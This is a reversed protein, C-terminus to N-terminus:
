IASLIQLLTTKSIPKVLHRDCGADISRQRDNVSDNATIAFIKASARDPWELEIKRIARTADHGNMRPIRIDMLILDFCQQQAEIVALLGDEAFRLDWPQDKLYVQLLRRNDISDDVILLKRRRATEDSRATSMPESALVPSCPMSLEFEFRVPANLEGPTRLTEGMLAILKECLDLSFNDHAADASSTVQTNTANAITSSSIASVPTAESSSEASSSEANSIAGSSISIAGLTSVSFCVAESTGKGCMFASM